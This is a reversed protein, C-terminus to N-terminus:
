VLYNSKRVADPLNVEDDEDQAFGSEEPPEAFPPNWHDEFDEERGHAEPDDLTAATPRVVSPM